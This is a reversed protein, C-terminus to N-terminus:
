LDNPLLLPLAPAIEQMATIVKPLSLDQLNQIRLTNVAAGRPTCLAPDSESSFLVTCPCDASALLHMPGTDNGVAATARRALAALDLFNTRGCLNRTGPSANAIAGLIDAEATAGLLVPTVGAKVLANALDAYRSTPWRKRPRHPSGGPVILCFPEVLNFHSTDSDAWSLDPLFSETIGTALLQDAQRDMTHMYDRNPNAHPHSCGQAIGSWEPWPGPWYLHYYLSSRDSTQLDYVRDFAADKMRTRLELWAGPQFWKPKNDLWVDDFYGSARLFVEYPTTTMVTIHAAPHHRRIAAMAGLAQVIDGLAGLKIVLIKLTKQAPNQVM